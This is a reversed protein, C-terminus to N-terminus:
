CFYHYVNEKDRFFHLVGSIRERLCTECKQSHVYPDPVPKELEYTGRTSVFVKEGYPQINYINYNAFM